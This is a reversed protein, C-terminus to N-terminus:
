FQPIKLSISRGFRSTIRKLATDASDVSEGRASTGAKPTSPTARNPKSAPKHVKGTVGAISPRRDRRGTYSNRHSKIVSRAETEDLSHRQHHSSDLRKRSQMGRNVMEQHERLKEALLLPISSNNSHAFGYELESLGHYEHTPSNPPVETQFFAHEEKVVIPEDVEQEEAFTTYCIPCFPKRHMKMHTNMSLRTPLVYDCDYCHYKPGRLTRSM